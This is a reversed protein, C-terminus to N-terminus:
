QRCTGTMRSTLLVPEYILVYIPTYTCRRRKTPLQGAMTAAADLTTVQKKVIREAGKKHFNKGVYPGSAMTRRQLLLVKEKLTLSIWNVSTEQTLNQMTRTYVDEEEGAFLIEQEDFM